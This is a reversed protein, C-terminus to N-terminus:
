GGDLQPFRLRPPWATPIDAFQLEMYSPDFSPLILFPPVIDGACATALIRGHKLDVSAEDFGATVLAEARETISCEQNMSVISGMRGWNTVIDQLAPCKQLTLFAGKLEKLTQQLM